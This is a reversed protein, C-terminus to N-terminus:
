KDSPGMLTPVLRYCYLKSGGDQLSCYVINCRVVGHGGNLVLTDLIYLIRM